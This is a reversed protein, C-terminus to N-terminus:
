RDDMASRPTYPQEDRLREAATKLDDPISEPLVIRAAVLLDGAPLTNSAPLGKGRLRFTKGSRAGAPLNLEVAGKLTPINVTGGLMAEYLTVPLDIRLDRGDVEFLKHKAIQVTIIADGPVSGRGPMGQGKLRIQKGDEIGAPIKIELTRGTSLSVRTEAGFAADELPVTVSALIDEGKTAAAAGGARGASGFLDAFFDTPDIGPQNGRFGRFPSAGAADQFAYAGGGASRAGGGGFGQYRPKGEADIEGRDFAGRKAEDELIEYAQSAESFKEKAKPDKSQDPHYKKALKRFAKKVEGADATKAVGLVDYPNRM